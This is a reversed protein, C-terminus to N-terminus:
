GGQVATLVEVQDGDALETAPWRSRPVVEGNVAVAMGSRGRGLGDVVVEVTVPKGM